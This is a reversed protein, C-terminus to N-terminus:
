SPLGLRELFANMHEINVPLWQQYNIWDKYAEMKILQKMQDVSKGEKRYQLVQARLNEIYTRFAVLDAINALGAHGPAM